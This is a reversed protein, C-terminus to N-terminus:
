VTIADSADKSGEPLWDLHFTAKSAAQDAPSVPQLRDAVLRLCTPLRSSVVDQHNRTLSRCCRHACRDLGESLNVGASFKLANSRKVSDRLEQRQQAKVQSM